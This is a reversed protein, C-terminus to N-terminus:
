RRSREAGEADVAAKIARLLAIRAALSEPQFDAVPWASHIAIVLRRAPDVHLQQGHVGIADFSGSDYTWWQYGYGSQPRDVRVQTRTAAEIWGDALVPRGDVRGGELVFQGFRAMDRTTTQLCCGGHEHGSGDLMWYADAQMGYAAWVKESAYRGLERGTARSVVVGLLNTEGTNYHWRTGPPAEPRLNRMYSVTADMGPEVPMSYFLAVDAGPDAYDENWGMGSTMTLLQRVTVQAYAGARLEPIFRTLPDDVAVAGDRVAAGLLTSTISKAMSFSVWRGSAHHGRAYRELRIRGDHLVVLGALQFDGISRQLEADGSGGAAFAPWAPGAPLDRLREGRRVVRTPFVDEWHAFAYEREAATWALRPRSRIADRDIGPPAPDQAAACGILGAALALM